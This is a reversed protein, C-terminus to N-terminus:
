WERHAIQENEDVKIYLVNDSLFRGYKHSELWQQVSQVSFRHQQQQLLKLRGPAQLEKVLV